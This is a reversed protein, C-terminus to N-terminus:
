KIEKNYIKNVELVEPLKVRLYNSTHGSSYGDRNEEILVDLTSGIFKNYYEKELKESLVIMKRAREKKTKEDVVDVMKSSATGERKSFPFVHIKAFNIKKCFEYTKEFLEDTEFNHGVILDTTISINPRIGRIENIKNEYFETDYKRNMVKLIEDCGSQLPVHLHDCFVTNEKLMNLFKDDLETIEVSSLRVRKIGDIKTIENILDVLDKGEDNYSGTHIGTLVIEKYGNQALTKCESIVKDFKKCRLTGRVFPIICYSCFNNCGDQVKIYARVQDFNTIEMDEFPINREPTIYCYNNKTNIYELVKETVKSKEKNGILININLNKYVDPNNQASCGCVVLIADPNERRVRRVMKLSKKDSTDTVTCTNIIIVNAENLKECLLFGHDILSQSIYNSEYTNVKCGLTIINFKM